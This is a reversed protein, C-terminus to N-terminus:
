ASYKSIRLNRHHNGGIEVFAEQDSDPFVAYFTQPKTDDFTGPVRAHDLVINFLSTTEIQKDNITNGFISMPINHWVQLDM